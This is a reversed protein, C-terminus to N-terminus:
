EELSYVIYNYLDVARNRAIDAVSSASTIEWITGGGTYSPSSVVGILNKETNRYEQWAKQNLTLAEKDEKKLKNLLINYYKDILKTYETEMYYAVEVLGATSWNKAMMDNARQEIIATDQRFEISIPDQLLEEQASLANCCFVFVVILILRYMLLNKIICRLSLYKNFRHPM